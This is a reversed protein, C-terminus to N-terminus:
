EAALAFTYCCHWRVLEPNPSFKLVLLFGDSMARLYMGTVFDFNIVNYAIIDGVRADDPNFAPINKRSTRVM